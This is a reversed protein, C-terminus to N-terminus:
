PAGCRLHKIMILCPNREGWLKNEELPLFGMALYFGRTKEYHANPRSPGLTKVELYEVARSRLLTEAHEVLARGIGLGHSEPRVAMVQIEATHKNHRNLTLFGALDGNVEAVYTEMAEIDRRYQVIAEEIGFWDPLARLIQECTDAECEALPRVAVTATDRATKPTPSM